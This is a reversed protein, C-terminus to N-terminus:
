DSIIINSVLLENFRRDREAKSKFDKAYTRWERSRNDKIKIRPVPQDDKRIIKFGAKIVKLQSKQDM